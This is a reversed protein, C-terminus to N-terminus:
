RKKQPMPHKPFVWCRQMLFMVPIFIIVVAAQVFAHRLELIDVFFLLASINTAYLGGYLSLYRVYSLGWDGRYSFSWHKNLVFTWSLGLLYLITVALKPDAGLYNLFVYLAYLLLNSALGVIGFRISQLWGDRM